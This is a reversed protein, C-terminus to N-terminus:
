DQGKRNNRLMQYLQEKKDIFTKLNQKSTTIMTKILELENEKQRIQRWLMKNEYSKPNFNKSRNMSYYLQKLANLSPKIENNKYDQLADITARICAIECGTKESLMDRDEEHCQAAGFFIKNRAEIICTAIGSEENWNFIPKNNM